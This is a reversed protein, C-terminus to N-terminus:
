RLGGTMYLLILIGAAGVFVGTALAVMNASSLEDITFLEDEQYIRGNKNEPMARKAMIVEREPGDVM